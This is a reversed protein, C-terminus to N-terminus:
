GKSDDVPYNQEEKELKSEEEVKSDDKLDEAMKSAVKQDEDIKSQVLDVGKKNERLISKGAISSKPDDVHNNQEKKELKSEEEVKSRDKLDETMKSAVKQDEDIKSQVLDVGKKNEKLIPKGAIRNSRKPMTIKKNSKDPLKQFKEQNKKLKKPSPRFSDDSDSTSSIDDFISFNSKKKVEANTIGTRSYTKFFKNKNSNNQLPKVRKENTILSVDEIKM